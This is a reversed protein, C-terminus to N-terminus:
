RIRRLPIPPARAFRRALSPVFSLAIVLVGAILVRIFARHRAPGSGSAGSLLADAFYTYVATGPLIGLATAAVYPRLGVGSVGAGVNIANFPVIPILRLRLLTLFGHANAFADVAAARGGLVRVM